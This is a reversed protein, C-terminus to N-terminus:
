INLKEFSKSSTKSIAISALIKEDPVVFGYSELLVRISRTISSDKSIKFYVEASYISSRKVKPTIYKASTMSYVLGNSCMFYWPPLNSYESHTNMQVYQTPEGCITNFWPNDGFYLDYLNGVTISKHNPLYKSNIDSVQNRRDNDFWILDKLTDLQDISPWIEKNNRPFYNKANVYGRYVKCDKTIVIVKESERLSTVAYEFTLNYDNVISCNNYELYTSSPKAANSTKPQETIIRIGARRLSEKVCKPTINFKNAWEKYLSEMSIGLSKNFRTSIDDAILIADDDTIVRKKYKTTEPNYEKNTCDWYLNRYWNNTRDFDKHYISTYKNPNPNTIFFSSVKHGVIHTNESIHYDIYRKIPDSNNRITPTLYKGSYISWIDGYNTGYYYDPLTNFESYTNLKYYRLDKRTSNCYANPNFRICWPSFFFNSYIFTTSLPKDLYKLSEEPYIPLKTLIDLLRGQKIMDEVRGYGINCTTFCRSCDYLEKTYTMIYTPYGYVGLDAYSGNDHYSKDFPTYVIM